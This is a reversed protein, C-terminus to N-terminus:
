QVLDDEPQLTLLGGNGKTIAFETIIGNTATGSTKVFITLIKLSTSTPWAKIKKLYDASMGSEILAANSSTDAILWGGPGYAM